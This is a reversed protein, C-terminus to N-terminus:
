GGPENGMALVADLRAIMAPAHQRLYLRVTELDILRAQLLEHVDLRDRPRNAKLKMYILVEGTVVPIHDSVLVADLAADLFPENPDPVIADVIVARGSIAAHVKEDLTVVGSPHEVYGERGILFDVDKTGRPWGHVGVALGGVLAHRVGDAALQASTERMTLLVRDGVSDDLNRISARAIRPPERLVIQRPM